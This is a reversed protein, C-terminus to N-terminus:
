AELGFRCWPWQIASGLLLPGGDGILLLLQRVAGRFGILITVRHLQKDTLVSNDKWVLGQVNQEHTTVLQQAPLVGREAGSCPTFELVELRGGSM